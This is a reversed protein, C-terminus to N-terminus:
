KKVFKRTVMSHDGLLKVYYMGAVYGTVDIVTQNETLSARYVVQGLTNTIEITNFDSEMMVTLMSNAPNPYLKVIDNQDIEKLGDTEFNVHITHNARVDTFIFSTLEYPQSVEDIVLEAVKYLADPTFDFQASRGEIVEVQGAPTIMGHPGATSTITYITEGPETTFTTCVFESEGGQQCAAKVCVEYETNQTLGTLSYSNATLLDSTTWGGTSRYQVTWGNVDANNWTFNAATSTINSVTLGTPADCEAAGTTFSIAATWASTDGAGCISRVRVNYNTSPTLGSLSYPNTITGTAATWNSSSATKYELTWNTGGTWSINGSTATINTATLGTPSPCSVTGIVLNYDIVNGSSNQCPNSLNNNNGDLQVRVRYIGNPTSAPITISGSHPSNQYSASNYVRETIDFIYDQDLDVWIAIGHTGGTYTATFNIIDGANATFPLSTRDYYTNSTCVTNDNLNTTSAGTTVFSNTYYNTVTGTFIPLCYYGIYVDSYKYNSEDTGGCTFKLRFNYSNEADLSSLIYPPATVNPDVTWATETSKKYELIRSVVDPNESWNLHVSTPSNQTAVFNQPNPCAPIYDIVIDDLWYFWNNASALQKFGIYHAGSVQASSLPVEFEDWVDYTSQNLTQVPVFTTTDAPDTLVGVQFPGSNSNGRRLKFSVMLATVDEDFRPTIAFTRFNSRFQLSYPSSAHTTATQPYSLYIVPRYM